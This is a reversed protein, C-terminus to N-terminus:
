LGVSKSVMPKSKLICSMMNPTRLIMCSIPTALERQVMSLNPRRGRRKILRAMASVQCRATSSRTFRHPPVITVSPAMPPCTPSSSPADATIDLAEPTSGSSVSGGTQRKDLGAGAETAVIYYEYDELHYLSFDPISASEHHGSTAALSSPSSVRERDSASTGSTASSSTTALDDERISRDPRPYIRHAEKGLHGRLGASYCVACYLLWLSGSRRMARAAPDIDSGLIM